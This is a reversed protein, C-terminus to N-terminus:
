EVGIKLVIATLTVQMAVKNMMIVILVRITILSDNNITNDSLRRQRAVTFQISAVLIPFQKNVPSM